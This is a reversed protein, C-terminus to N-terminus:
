GTIETMGPAIAYAGFSCKHQSVHAEFEARFKTILAKAPMAAADGLPCITNGQINTAVEFFLDLDEMTALGQEIRASMKALWHTGERCPTCQGCSEHAYFRMLRETLRVACTSQDFVAACGTGLMTGAKRMDDFTMNVDLEDPLLVPTSSGGPIVGKLAKDGRMGGAHEFIIEKLNVGHPLEWLGPRKVHGSAGYLKTGAGGNLGMNKWAEAGREIIHPVQALTEVNNVITPMGFVGVVAPFPPKLRPKGPKGEISEILATEEGCVYAGAGRHVYVNLDFGKGLINKGLYNAAVAEAIAQELRRAIAHFEGRIYIYCTNARIAHCAIAIGELMMHPDRDMIYRDKYTGPEGEDANVLLYRPGPHDKPVFSWKMGTSFGAGGMGRLGSAKVEDIIASPERALASALSKYGGSALYTKLSHSDERGWNRSLLREGM